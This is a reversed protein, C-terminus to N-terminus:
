SLAVQTLQPDGIGLSSWYQIAAKAKVESADKAAQDKTLWDCVCKELAGLNQNLGDLAATLATLDVTGAGFASAIAKAVADGATAIAQTDADIAAVIQACCTKDAAADDPPPTPPAPPAPPAAPTPPNLLLQYILWALYALTAGNEALCAFGQGLEDDNPDIPPFCPAPIPFPWVTPFSPGPPPAPPPTPNTNDAPHLALQTVIEDMARVFTYVSGVGDKSYQFAKLLLNFLTWYGQGTEGQVQHGLAQMTIVSGQEWQSFTAQIAPNSDSIPAGNRAAMAFNAALAKLPWYASMNLGAILNDTDEFKPRGSFAGLLISLPDIGALQLAINVADIVATTLDVPPVEVPM